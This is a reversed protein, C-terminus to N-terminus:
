AAAAEARVIATAVAEKNPLKDPDVINFPEGAALLDLEDRNNGDVLEKVRAAQADTLQDSPGGAQEVEEDTMPDIKRQDYLRELVRDRDQDPLKTKDLQTGPTIAVGAFRFYSAAKYDASPDFKPTRPM